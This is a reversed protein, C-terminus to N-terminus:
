PKADIMFLMVGFSLTLEAPDGEPKADIMFLMVGFGVRWRDKQFTTKHRGHIVNSWFWNDRQRESQFTKYGDNIVNSWFTNNRIQGLGSTKCRDHIVIVWLCM